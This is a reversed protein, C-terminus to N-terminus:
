NYWDNFDLGIFKLKLFLDYGHKKLYLEYDFFM